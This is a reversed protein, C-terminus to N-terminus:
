REKIPQQLSLDYQQLMNLNKKAKTFRITQLTDKKYHKYIRNKNYITHLSLEKYNGKKDKFIKKETLFFVVM